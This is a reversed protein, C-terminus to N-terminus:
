WNFCKKICEAQAKTCATACPFYNPDTVPPCNDLCQDYAANCDDLCEQNVCIGPVIECIHTYVNTLTGLAVPVFRAYMRLEAETWDHSEQISSVLVDYFGAITRRIRKPMKELVERPPFAQLIATANEAVQAAVEEPIPAEGSEVPPPGNSFLWNCMALADALDRRGDGNVDGSALRRRREAEQAVAPVIEVLLVMALLASLTTIWLRKM